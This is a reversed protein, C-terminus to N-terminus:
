HENISTHKKKLGKKILDIVADNNTKAKSDIKYKLVENWLKEEADLILKKAM